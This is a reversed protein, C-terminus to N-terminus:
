RCRFVLTQTTRNTFPIPWHDPATNPELLDVETFGCALLDDRLDERTRDDFAFAAGKTFRKFLREFTRGVVGPQPQECFPVLDFVYVSGPHQKMLQNIRTWLKKQGDQDFYMMLGESIVCAPGDVVLEDLDLDFVNGRVFTLNDRDAVERGRKSRKLLKQKKDVVAPLDVEVYSVDPNASTAAGRRSLGAALELVQACGSEAMVADIMAHRQALSHRLSPLGRRFVRAIGLSLNTANFVDRGRWTGFLEGGDFKAWKWVQATYLATVTLDGSKKDAKSSKSGTDGTDRKDGVAM